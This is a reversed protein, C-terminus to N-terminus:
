PRSDAPLPVEKLEMPGGCCECTDSPRRSERKISCVDCWYYLEHLKGNKLAHVELVQFLTAKAVLRGKLQVSRNLLVPDNYFRRSGVDRLLPLRKGDQTEFALQLGAEPDPEIKEEKLADSLSIVKGQYTTIAPKANQTQAAVAALGLWLAMLTVVWRM